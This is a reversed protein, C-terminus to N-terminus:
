GAFTASLETAVPEAGEPAEIRLRLEGAQERLHFSLFECCEAEAAVVRELRRKTQPAGRFRLEGEATMGLFADRGLARIEALRRELSQADLSCALPLDRM